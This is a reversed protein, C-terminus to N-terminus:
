HADNLDGALNEHSAMALKNLVRKEILYPTHKYRPTRRSCRLASFGNILSHGVWRVDIPMPSGEYVPPTQLLLEGLYARWESEDLLASFYAHYSNGSSAVICSARLRCAFKEIKEFQLDQLNGAVFDIMPIHLIRGNVRYRSNLALEEQGTLADITQQIWSASIKNEQVHVFTRTGATGPLGNIYRSFEFEGSPERRAVDRLLRVLADYFSRPAKGVKHL